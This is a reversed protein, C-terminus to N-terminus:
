LLGQFFLEREAASLIPLTSCRKFRSLILQITLRMPLAAELPATGASFAFDNIKVANDDAAKKLAGADKPQSFDIDRGNFTGEPHWFEIYKYGVQAIKRIRHEFPLDTFFCEACVSIKAM